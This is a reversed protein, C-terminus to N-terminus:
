QDVEIGFMCLKELGLTGNYRPPNFCLDLLQRGLVDLIAVSGLVLLEGKFNPWGSLFSTNWKWTCFRNRSFDGLHIFYIIKSTFWFGPLGFGFLSRDKPHDMYIFSERRGIPLNPIQVEQSFTKFFCDLWELCLYIKRNVHYAFEPKKWKKEWPFNCLLENSWALGQSRQRGRACGLRM